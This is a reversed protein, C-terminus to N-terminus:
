RYGMGLDKRMVRRVTAENVELDTAMMVGNKIQKVHYIPTNMYLLSTVIDEIAEETEEKLQEQERKKELKEPQRLSERYLASM